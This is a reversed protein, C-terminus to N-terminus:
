EGDLLQRCRQFVAIWDDWRLRGTQTNQRSPHYSTIVRRGNELPHERLHGFPMPPLQWVKRLADFAIRGLCLYVQVRGAIRLTDALYPRCHDLHTRTPKNKPPACHIAATIFCDHLTMGDDLASSEPQSAFGTEYLARYLWRGSDDGTFMRGTRNAGHAGPALGIIALRGQPDGFNPVPRAWYQWDRFRRVKRRGVDQIYEILDPCQRCNVIRRNLENWREDSM